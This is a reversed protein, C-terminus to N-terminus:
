SLQSKFRLPRRNPDGPLVLKWRNVEKFLENFAEREDERGAPALAVTIWKRNVRVEGPAAFLNALAKKAEEPKRLHPALESALESEANACAIRVTDLVTKYHSEHRVLKGALATEELPAHTPVHPRLTELREQEVLSEALDREVKGRRHDNKPLRALLRRMEGERQRLLRLANDLRRRAPNPIVTEPAYQEVKRRDLQNIGWRENGHKFGNEQVWRGLMVEILRWAPEKSVALLNVQKGDPMLLAIRRVRGRGGGLNKLRRECVGIEEGDVEVTETFASRSLLPFPRREYTVFEVGEERLEALQEPFAGARDFAVLIRQGEGLGSRLFCTIPSLWETLHDNSPVDVRFVPRGDEDHVYFDTAGPRVRKDQMRWGKRVTHKGTYPRMHNDVYFVAAGEESRSRELYAGTMRLHMKAGGVDDAYHKLVQRVWSESPTRSARLLFPGSPTALRRVGEVCRQGLGLALIVAELAMRMRERWRRSAEWPGLAAEYLGYSSLLAVLLWGGLHQVFRGGRVPAVEAGEEDDFGDYGSAEGRPEDEEAAPKGASEEVVAIEQQVPREVVSQGEVDLRPERKAMWSWHLRLVTSYSVKLMRGLKRFVEVPRRGEEFLRHVRECARRDLKPESGGRSRGPIADPGLEKGTKCIRRRQEDSMGFARALAGKKIHRDTSLGVVLVNRTLVDHRGYRGILLGHVFVETFDDGHVVCGGSTFWHTDSRRQVAIQPIMM